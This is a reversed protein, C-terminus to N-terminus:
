FGFTSKLDNLKKNLNKEREKAERRAKMEEAPIVQLGFPDKGSNDLLGDLNTIPKGDSTFYFYKDGKKGRYISNNLTFEQYIERKNTYPNFCVYEYPPFRDLDRNVKEFKKSERLTVQPAGVNNSTKYQIPLKITNPREYKKIEYKKGMMWSSIIDDGVTYFIRKDINPTQTNRSSHPIYIDPLNETDEFTKDYFIQITKSDKYDELETLFVKAKMGNFLNKGMRRAPPLAFVGSTIEMNSFAEDGIFKLGYPIILDKLRAGEFAKEGIGLVQYTTTDKDNKNYSSSFPVSTPIIVVSDIVSVGSVYVEGESKFIYQPDGTKRGINASKTYYESAITYILGDKEFSVGRPSAFSIAYSAHASQFDNIKSTTKKTKMDEASVVQLGFPDIGSNDVLSEKDIPKGDLTFYFYENNIRGRYISNNITFEQYVEKKHTYPNWCEYEYPPLMDIDKQTKEFKKCIRLTIQPSENYKYTKFQLPKGSSVISKPRTNKKAKIRGTMWKDIINNGVTYFIKKDVNNVQTGISSHPIYINPLKDTNEFTKYFFIQNTKGEYSDELGTIFVNTKMGDFLNAGMRKAPPVVLVGSTLEMNKFAEKGIFKLGYPIILDKLMANEFAREGIGMVQYRATDETKRGYSSPFSVTTPINVVADSVSVGSVYVEGENKYLFQPDGFNRGINFKKVIFESAITYILGDKEFSVGRQDAYTILYAALSLLLLITKKM